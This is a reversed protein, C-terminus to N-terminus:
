SRRECQEGCFEYGIDHLLGLVFMAEAQDPGEPLTGEYMQRAVALSYRLRSVSM